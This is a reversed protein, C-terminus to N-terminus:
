STSNGGSVQQTRFVHKPDHSSIEFDDDAAYTEDLMVVSTAVSTASATSAASAAELQKQKAKLKKKDKQVTRVFTFLVVVAVVCLISGVVAVCAVSIIMIPDFEKADSGM